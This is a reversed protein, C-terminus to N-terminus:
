YRVLNMEVADKLKANMRLSAACHFMINVESILHDSQSWIDSTRKKKFVGRIAVNDCYRESLKFIDELRDDCSCGKKARTLIYIKNLDSCSYLLKEILVKGMFGSAGTIFITKDKYFSQIKSKSENM